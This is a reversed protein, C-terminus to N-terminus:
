LLPSLHSLSCTMHPLFRATYYVKDPAWKRFNGTTNACGNQRQGCQCGSPQNGPSNEGLKRQMQRILSLKMGTSQFICRGKHQSILKCQSIYDDLPSSVGAGQGAHVKGVPLDLHSALNDDSPPKTLM